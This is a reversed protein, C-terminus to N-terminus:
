PPCLSPAAAGSPPAPKSITWVHSVQHTTAHRQHAPRPKIDSCSMNHLDDCSTALSSDWVPSCRCHQVNCTQVHIAPWLQATGHAGAGARTEAHLKPRIWCRTAVACALLPESWQRPTRPMGVVQHQLGAVDVARQQRQPSDNACQAFRLHPQRGLLRPRASAPLTSALRQGHLIQLLFSAM